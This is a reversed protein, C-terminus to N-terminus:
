HKQFLVEIYGATVEVSNGFDKILINKLYINWPACVHVIHMNWGKVTSSCEHEYTLCDVTIHKLFRQKTSTWESTQQPETRNNSYAALEAPPSLGRRSPSVERKRPSVPSM